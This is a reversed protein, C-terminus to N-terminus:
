RGVTETACGLVDREYALFHAAEKGIGPVHSMGDAGINFFKEPVQAYKGWSPFL